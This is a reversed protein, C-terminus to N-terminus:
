SIVVIRVMEGEVEEGDIDTFSGNYLEEERKLWTATTDWLTEYPQFARNLSSIQHYETVDDGLNHTHTHTYYFFSFSSFLSFRGHYITFIYIYSQCHIYIM